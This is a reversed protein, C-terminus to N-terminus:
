KTLLDLLTKGPDPDYLQTAKEHAQKGMKKWDEKKTWAKEMAKEFSEETATEAIFGSRDEEIWETIGGVDTVVCARGCLMAEVIALPMGEMRSPMLLIDNNKWLERIDDVKGHFTIRDNLGAENCLEILYNKDPGSGYINLHWNRNRWNNKKLINIVIDQGKHVTILNGVMAFHVKEKQLFPIITKEKMNVPNRVVRANSIDYGLDRNATIIDRDNTFFVKVARQYVKKITAVIENPLQSQRNNFHGLVFFKGKYNELQKLLQKEDAISYCTGNYLIIDPSLEFLKNFPDQIKKRLYNKTLILFKKLGSVNPDTIGPRQIQILGLSVLEKLKPHLFKQEYSLHIVEHGESFAKKAVEYWLEESGGWADRIMSIVAIKM